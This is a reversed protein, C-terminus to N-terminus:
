NLARSLFTTVNENGEAAQLVFGNEDVAFVAPTSVFPAQNESWVITLSQKDVKGSLELSWKDYDDIVICVFDPSLAIREGFKEIL